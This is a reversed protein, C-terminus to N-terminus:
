DGKKRDWLLICRYLLGNQNKIAEGYCNVLMSYIMFNTEEIDNYIDQPIKVRFRKNFYSRQTLLLNVDDKTVYVRKGNSFMMLVRSGAKNKEVGKDEFEQSTFDVGIPFNSVLILIPSNKKLIQPSTIKLKAHSNYKSEPVRVIAIADSQTSFLVNWFCFFILLRKM